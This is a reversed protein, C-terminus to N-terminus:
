CIISDELGHLAEAFWVDWIGEVGLWNYSAIVCKKKM